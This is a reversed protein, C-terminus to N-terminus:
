SLSSSREGPNSAAVHLIGEEADREDRKALVRGAATRKRAKRMTKENWGEPM